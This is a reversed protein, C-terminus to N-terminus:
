AEQKHSIHHDQIGGTSATPPGAGPVSAPPLDALYHSRLAADTCTCVHEQATCIPCTHDAEVRLRISGDPERSVRDPDAGIVRAVTRVQFFATMRALENILDAM